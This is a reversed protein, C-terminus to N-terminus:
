LVFNIQKQYNKLSITNQALSSDGYSRGLGRAIHSLIKDKKYLNFIDINNKPLYINTDININNGWGSLNKKYDM